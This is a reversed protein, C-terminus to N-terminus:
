RLRKQASVVFAPHMARVAQVTEARCDCSSQQNTSIAPDRDTLQLKNAPLPRHRWRIFSVLILVSWPDPLFMEPFDLGPPDGCIKRACRRKRSNESVDGTSVAHSQLLVVHPYSVSRHIDLFGFVRSHGECTDTFSEIMSMGMVKESM